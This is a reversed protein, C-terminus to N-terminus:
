TINFTTAGNLHNKLYIILKDHRTFYSDLTVYM